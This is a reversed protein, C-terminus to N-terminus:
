AVGLAEPWQTIGLFTREKGGGAFTHRKRVQAEALDAGHLRALHDDDLVILDAVLAESRPFLGLMTEEFPNIEGADGAREILPAHIQRPRSKPFFQSTLLTLQFFDREIIVGDNNGHRVRALGG